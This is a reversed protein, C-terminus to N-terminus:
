RVPSPFSPPCLHKRRLILLNIVM